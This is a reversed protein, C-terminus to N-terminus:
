ADRWRAPGLGLILSWIFPFFVYVFTFGVGRGFRANIRHVAIWLVIYAVLMLVIAILSSWVVMEYVLKGSMLQMIVPIMAVSPLVFLMVLWPSMRGLKLLVAFNYLPIWAKWGQVGAKKFVMSLGWSSLLYQLLATILQALREKTETAANAYESVMTPDSITSLFEM